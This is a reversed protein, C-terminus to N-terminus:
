AVHPIYQDASLNTQDLVHQLMSDDIMLGFYDIQRTGVLTPTCGPDMEYESISTPTDQMLEGHESEESGEMDDREQEGESEQEGDSEEGDDRELMEMEDVYGDFDDDSGDDEM